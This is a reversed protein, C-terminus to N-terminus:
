MVTLPDVDVAIGPWRQPGYRAVLAGQVADRMSPRHGKLVIQFRHEGRLRALPAHGPGLVRYRGRAAVRLDQGLAEAQAAGKAGDGARVILNVLAATPPYAMTRRFEMEREHFAEYDQTCALELAYHDPMHSQLIVEGKTEGRGARGAVQTLLQFTREASRFDPIGLGVDADVVGVLTVRPFDHGKAIMQTGVLVDIEGAEFAALTRAVVGRRSARDRDLREVRARPLAAQV